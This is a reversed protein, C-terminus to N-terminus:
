PVQIAKPPTAIRRRRESPHEAVEVPTAWADLKADMRAISKDLEAMSKVVAEKVEAHHELDKTTHDDVRGAIRDLAMAQRDAIKVEAERKASENLEWRTVAWRLFWIIMGAVGPALIININSVDM